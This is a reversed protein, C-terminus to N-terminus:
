RPLLTRPDNTVNDIVSAYVAFESNSPFPGLVLRAGEVDGTVGMDRVVRTVQTMFGGPLSYRKTALTTGDEAVLAAAVDFPSGPIENFLILNTRFAADERVGLITLTPTAGGFRNTDPVSQGFTGGFGPTSTQGLVVRNTSTAGGYVRLAGYGDSVGIVSGLVDAYTITEGAGLSLAIKLPATGGDHPTFQIFGSAQAAGLNSITLDTTYFAGNAGAARASSALIWNWGLPAYGVGAAPLLTRPDNTANDIASAYAAVAGGSTQTSLDLRAGSVAFAVGLDRVVRSVQTMGLPPLTYRKTALGNGGSAVLSVDVDVASKTENCLVLNTRFSSDERVAVISAPSGKQVTVGSPVPVSQGFTGGFGPTSTQGMAIVSDSPSSIMVAGYGSSVGFVSGLVDTFTRGQGAGLPFTQEPGGTGDQDHGLFKLTVTTASTGTNAVALDTTYFAGNAGGAHAASPLFKSGVTQASATPVWLLAALLWLRRRM